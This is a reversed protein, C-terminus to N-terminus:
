YYWKNRLHLRKLPIQAPFINIPDNNYNLHKNQNVYVFDQLKVPEKKLIPVLPLKGTPM